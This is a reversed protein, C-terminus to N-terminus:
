REYDEFEWRLFRNLNAAIAPWDGGDVSHVRQHLAAEVAQWAFREVVLTGRSWFPRGESDFRRALGQPTCVVFDFTDAGVEGVPGIEAQM